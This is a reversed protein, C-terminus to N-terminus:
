KVEAQRSSDLLQNWCHTAYYVPAHDELGQPPVIEWRLDAWDGLRTRIAQLQGRVRDQILDRSGIGDTLQHDSGFYKLEGVHRYFVPPPLETVLDTNNVIRYTPQHYRAQFGADGVRPAGFTYVGAAKGFQDAALVALAGGLSHGTFWITRGQAALRELPTKMQRWVDELASQFGAHVQGGDGAETPLLSLDTLVDKLEDPETGRLAVIAFQDNYAILGQTDHSSDPPSSFIQVQNLGARQLQRAVFSADDVYVLMSTEALWWANALDFQKAGPRFPFAKANDFYPYRRNPGFLADFSRDQPLPKRGPVPGDAATGPSTGWTGAVHLLAVWIPWRRCVNRLLTKKGM